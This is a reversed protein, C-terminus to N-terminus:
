ASQKTYFRGLSISIFNYCKQLPITEYIGQELKIALNRADIDAADEIFNSDSKEEM